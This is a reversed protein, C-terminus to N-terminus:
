WPQGSRYPKRGELWATNLGTPPGPSSRQTGAAFGGLRHVGALRALIRLSSTGTLSTRFNGGCCIVDGSAMSAASEENVPMSKTGFENAFPGTLRPAANYLRSPSKPNEAAFAM